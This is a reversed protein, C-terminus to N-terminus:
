VFLSHNLIIFIVIILVLLLVILSGISDSYIISIFFARWRNINEETIMLKVSTLTDTNQNHRIGNDISTDRTGEDISNGINKIFEYQIPNRSVYNQLNHKKLTEISEDDIHFNKALENIFNVRFNSTTIIWATFSNNEHLSWYITMINELSIRVGLRFQNPSNSHIDNLKMGTHDLGYCWFVLYSDNSYKHIVSYYNDILILVNSNLPIGMLLKSLTKNEEDKHKQNPTTTQDSPLITKSPNDLKWYIKRNIKNFTEKKIGMFNDLIDYLKTNPNAKLLIKYENILTKGYEQYIYLLSRYLEKIKLLESNFYNFIVAYIAIIKEYKPEINETLKYYYSEEYLRPSNNNMSM